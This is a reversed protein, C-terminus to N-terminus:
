DKVLGPEYTTMPATISPKLKSRMKQLMNPDITLKIGKSIANGTANANTDKIARVRNEPIINKPTIINEKPIIVYSEPHMEHLVDLLLKKKYIKSFPIIVIQHAIWIPYVQGENTISIGSCEIYQVVSNDIKLYSIDAPVGNHLNLLTMINGDKDTILKIKFVPDVDDSASTASNFTFNTSPSSSLIITHKIQKLHQICVEEFQEIFKAFDPIVSM